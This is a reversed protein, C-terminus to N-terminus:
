RINNGNGAVQIVTAGSGSATAAQHVALQPQLGRVDHVWRMLFEQLESDSALLKKLQYTLVGQAEADDVQLALDDLVPDVPTDRFKNRLRQWLSNFAEGGAAEAAGDVAKSILSPLLPAVAAALTAIDMM